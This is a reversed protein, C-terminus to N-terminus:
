FDIPTSGKTDTDIDPVLIYRQRLLQRLFLRRYVNEM